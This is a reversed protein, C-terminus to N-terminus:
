KGVTKRVSDFYAKGEETVDNASLMIDSMRVVDFQRNEHIIVALAGDVDNYLAQVFHVKHVANGTHLEVEFGPFSPQQNKPEPGENSSSGEAKTIAADALAIASMPFHEKALLARRCEKIAELLDPAAAFLLANAERQEPEIGTMQVRALLMGGATEVRLEGDRYDRAVFPGPTHKPEFSM